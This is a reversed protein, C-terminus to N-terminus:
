DADVAVVVAAPAFDAFASLPRCVLQTQMRTKRASGLVRICRVALRMGM